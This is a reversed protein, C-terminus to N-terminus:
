YKSCQKLSSMTWFELNLRRRRGREWDGGYSAPETRARDSHDPVTLGGRRETRSWGRGKEQKRVLWATEILQKAAHSQTMMGFNHNQRSNIPRPHIPPPCFCWWKRGLNLFRQNSKQLTLAVSWWIEQRRPCSIKSLWRLVAANWLNSRHKRM